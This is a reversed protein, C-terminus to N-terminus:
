RFYAAIGFAAAATTILATLAIGAFNIRDVHRAIPALVGAFEADRTELLDTRRMHERLNEEHRGQLQEISSLRDAVRDLKDEIRQLRSSEM